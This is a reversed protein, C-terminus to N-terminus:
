GFARVGKKKPKRNKILGGKVEKKQNIKKKTLIGKIRKFGKRVSSSQRELLGIIAVLQHTTSLDDKVEM